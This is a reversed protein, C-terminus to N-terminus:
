SVTHGAAEANGRFSRSRDPAYLDVTCLGANRKELHTERHAIAEKRGRTMLM